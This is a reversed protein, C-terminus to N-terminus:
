ARTGLPAAGRGTAEKEVGDAEDGRGVLPVGVRLRERRESPEEALVAALPSAADPDRPTGVSTAVLAEDRSRLLEELAERRLPDTAGLADHRLGLPSMDRAIGHPDASLDDPTVVAQEPVPQDDM